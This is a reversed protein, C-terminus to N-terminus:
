QKVSVVRTHDYTSVLVRPLFYVHCFEPSRSYGEDPSPASPARHVVYAVRKGIVGANHQSPAKLIKSIRVEGDMKRSRREVPVIGRFDHQAGDPGEAERVRVHILPIIYADPFKLYTGQVRVSRSHFHQRHYKNRYVRRPILM